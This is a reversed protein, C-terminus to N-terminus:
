TVHYISLDNGSGLYSSPDNRGRGCGETHIAAPTYASPPDGARRVAPRHRLPHQRMGSDRLGACFTVCSQMQMTFCISLNDHQIRNGPVRRQMAPHQREARVRRILMRSNQSKVESHELYQDM